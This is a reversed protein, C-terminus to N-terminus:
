MMMDLLMQQPFIKSSLRTQSLLLLFIGMPDDPKHKSSSLNKSFKTIEGDM